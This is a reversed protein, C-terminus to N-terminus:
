SNLVENVTVMQGIELWGLLVHQRAAHDAMRSIYIIDSVKEYRTSLPKDPISVDCWKLHKSEAARSQRLLWDSTNLVIGHPISSPLSPSSGVESYLGCRAAYMFATWRSGILWWVLWVIWARPQFHHTIFVPM